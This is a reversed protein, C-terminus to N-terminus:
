GQRPVDLGEQGVEMELELDGEEELEGLQGYRGLMVDLARGVGQRGSGLMAM